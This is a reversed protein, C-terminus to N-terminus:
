LGIHSGTCGLATSYTHHGNHVLCDVFIGRGLNKQEDVYVFM